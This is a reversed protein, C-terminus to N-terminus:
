AEDPSSDCTVRWDAPDIETGEAADFEPYATFVLYETREELYDVLRRLNAEALGGVGDVLMVPVTEAVDFAEFGALAAVFGLLELEGESLADLRAERGNRAVVLDFDATLRATEFGADFRALVDGLADDFAERTERMVAERRTRLAELDAQLSAREERLQEVRAARSELSEREERADALEAERYRIDSEVDALDAVAEDVREALAEVREAARERRERAEALSDRKDALDDELDAIATELDRKRRRAQSAEELRAEFEDVRERATELAARRRTLREGVAELQDALASRPAESGCTWCAVRDGTLEREVDTVSDLRNESLVLDNAAHVSQLVEVERKIAALEERAAAHEDEVDDVEPVELAALGQRKEALTAERREISRELREIRQEAQDRESQARALARQEDGTDPGGNGASGSGGDSGGDDPAARDDGGSGEVPGGLEERRERLDALDSELRSVKEAVTPLRKRAEVAQDLEADVQERERRTDAIREDLNELDLPALLVDELNEGARVARRVENTEDPCAFLATRRRDYEDTLYPTGERTVADGERVLGVGVEGEPTQLTVRGESRGETLATSVGLGTKIAEVFSSKGQWNSARVANLGPELTASGELIGGVHEIEVEWTM